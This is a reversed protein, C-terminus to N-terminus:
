RKLDRNTVCRNRFHHLLINALLRGLQILKGIADHGTPHRDFGGVPMMPLPKTVIHSDVHRNGTGFQYHFPLGVFIDIHSHAICEICRPALQLIILSPKTSSCLRM